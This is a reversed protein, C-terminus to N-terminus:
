KPIAPLTFHVTTGERQRSEVWIRGGHAEIIAKVISMGLGLGAVASDSADARYFKDFVRLQQEPTMGIGEDTVMLHFERKEIVGRVTILSGRPSFKCANSLLNDMVQGMKWPDVQLWLPHSPLHSEIRHSSCERSFQLVQKQIDATLNCRSCELHIVRGSEVRSINLLDSIIKELIRSKELIISLYEKQDGSLDGSGVLVEAFGKVSTLPTRLEHAATSIFESKMRDIERERTVNRLLTITGNVRGQGGRVATTRAQITLTDEGASGGTTWEVADREAKGELTSAIQAKVGDVTLITEVPRNIAEGLSIGLMGEAARNMLMVRGALDAVVLGDAVSKLIADIKDRAEAMESLAKTRIEEAHKRETIDTSIGCIAYLKGQLDRLPFKVSLYTYEGGHSLVDEEMTLPTGSRIVKLDNRRYQRALPRPFLDIDRNGLAESRGVGTIEEFQHNVFLFRGRLDKLHVIARSNDLISQLRQESERLEHFLTEKEAAVRQRELASGFLEGVTRLLVLDKEDWHKEKSITDIGLTGVVRGSGLLPVSVLSKIGLQGWLQREAEAETPLADLTPLVILKQALLRGIAWPVSHMPFEQLKEKNSPIQPACWERTCTAVTNEENHQFIIVRDAGVFHGLQELASEIGVSIEEIPLEVFRTSIEALLREFAERYALSEEAQKRQTIDQVLAVFYRLEGNEDFYPTSTTHGWVTTGDSRSYRKEYDIFPIKGERLSNYMRQTRDRDEPHTFAEVTMGILTEKPHGLYDCLARNAETLRRDPTFICMGAATSEFFSRFREESDRLAQEKARRESINRFSAFLTPTGHYDFIRVSVEVPFLTGDKRMHITEFLLRGQQRIEDVRNEFNAAKAPALLERMDKQLMEQRSFGFEECAMANVELLTGEETLIYAPDNGGEFLTRFTEESQELQRLTRLQHLKEMGMRSLLRVFDLNYDLIAKIKELSHVPVEGIADLYEEEDYGYKRAQSRFFDADPPEYFFQGLFLTALHSGDIVIPVGIDVLGNSCRYEVPRGELLDKKDTLYSDVFADSRECHRRSGPHHRHFLQCAKQWGSTVLVTGDPSLIGTPIGASAWLNDALRQVTSIDVVDAFSFVM